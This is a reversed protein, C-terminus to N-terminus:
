RWGRLEQRRQMGRMQVPLLPDQVGCLEPLDMGGAILADTIVKKIYLSKVITGQTKGASSYAAINVINGHVTYEMEAVGGIADLYVKFTETLRDIDGKTLPETTDIWSVMEIHSRM